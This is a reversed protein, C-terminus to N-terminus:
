INKQAVIYVIIQIFILMKNKVYVHEVLKKCQIIVNHVCIQIETILIIKIVYVNIQRM